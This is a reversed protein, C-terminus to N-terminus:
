EQQDGEEEEAPHEEHEWQWQLIDRSYNEWFENTVLNFAYYMYNKLLSRATLDTSFDVTLVLRGLAAEGEKAFRILTEDSVYPPIQYDERFEDIFDEYATM